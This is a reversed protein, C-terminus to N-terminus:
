VWLSNSHNGKGLTRLHFTQGNFPSKTHKCFTEIFDIRMNGPKEDFDYRPNVMDDMLKRLTSKLEEGAIIENSMVKQYYEILYNM